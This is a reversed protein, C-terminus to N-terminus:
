RLFRQPPEQNNRQKIRTLGRHADVWLFLALVFLLFGVWVPLGGDVRWISWQVHETGMSCNGRSIVFLILIAGLAEELRRILKVM